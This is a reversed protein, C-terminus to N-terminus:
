LDALCNLIDSLLNNENLEKYPCGENFNTLTTQGMFLGNPKYNFIQITYNSENEQLFHKIVAVYFSGLINEIHSHFIPKDTATDEYDISNPDGDIFNNIKTITSLHQDYLYIFDDGLNGYDYFIIPSINEQEQSLFAGMIKINANDLPIYASLETTDIEQWSLPINM